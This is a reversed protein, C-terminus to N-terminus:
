GRQFILQRLAERAQPVIAEAAAYNPHTNDDSYGPIYNWPSGDRINGVVAPADILPTGDAAALAQLRSRMENFAMIAVDRGDASPECGAINWIIKSGYERSFAAADTTAKALLTQMADVNFGDNRSLPQYAVIDPLLAPANKRLMVEYVRSATGGWAMSSVEIPFRPTSLDWSARHLPTSFNDEPPAASLSDGSIVVQIGPHDTLYQVAWLPGFNGRGLWRWDTGTPNDAFDRGMTWAQLIYHRRGRNAALNRNFLPFNATASAFGTSGVTVYIFLLPQRGGDARALSRCPSFDSWRIEVPWPLNRPNLTNAPLVVSRGATGNDRMGLGAGHNSWYIPSGDESGTPRIATRTGGEDTRQANSYSDSPFISAKSIIMDLNFPNAVGIRIAHCPAEIPVIYLMTVPLSGDVRFLQPRAILGSGLTKTLQARRLVPGASNTAKAPHAALVQQHHSNSTAVMAALTLGSTIFRRRDM